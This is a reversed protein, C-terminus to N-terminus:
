IRKQNLLIPQCIMLICKKIMKPDSGTKYQQLLIKLFFLVPDSGAELLIM